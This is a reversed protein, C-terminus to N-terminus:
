SASRAKELQADLFLKEQRRVLERAHIKGRPHLSEQNFPTPHRQQTEVSFEAGYPAQELIAEQGREGRLEDMLEKRATECRSEWKAAEARWHGAERKSDDLQRQLQRHTEFLSLIWGIM